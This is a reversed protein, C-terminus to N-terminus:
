ILNAVRAINDIVETETVAASTFIHGFNVQLTTNFDGRKDRPVQMLEALSDLTEGRGMSIEKALTDMNAAVFVRLHENQSFTKPQDCELTGSSIGFTQNGLIGNTTAAATQSMLGDNNEFLITGIGCGCNKRPGADATGCAIVCIVLALLVKKM